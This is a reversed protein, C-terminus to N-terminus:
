FVEAFVPKIDTFHVWSLFLQKMSIGTFKFKGIGQLKSSPLDFLHKTVSTREESVRYSAVPLNMIEPVNSIQLRSTM